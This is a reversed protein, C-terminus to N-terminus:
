QMALLLSRDLDMYVSISILSVWRQSARRWPSNGLSDDRGQRMEWSRVLGGLGLQPGAKLLATMAAFKLANLTNTRLSEHTAILQFTQSLSAVKSNVGFPQLEFADPLLVVEPTDGFQLQGKFREFSDASLDILNGPKAIASFASSASLAALIASSASTFPDTM